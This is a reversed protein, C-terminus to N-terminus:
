TERGDDNRALTRFSSDVLWVQPDGEEPSSASVEVDVEEGADGAFRLARFEAGGSVLARDVDSHIDGVIASPELAPPDAVREDPTRGGSAGCASLAFALLL